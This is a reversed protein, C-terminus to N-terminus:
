APASVDAHDFVALAVVKWVGGAVGGPMFATATEPLLGGEPPRKKLGSKLGNKLEIKLRNNVVTKLYHRWL